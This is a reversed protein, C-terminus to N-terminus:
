FSYGLNIGLVGNLPLNYLEGFDATNYPVLQNSPYHIYVRNKRYGLGVYSDMTVRHFKGIQVGAIINLNFHRFDLYVRKYYNIRGLYIAATSYSVLPAVYFGYPAFKRKRILYFKHAYQLRWGSAKLQISSYAATTALFFNPCLYSIGVQESQTRTSTIEAMFRFESTFPFIGGWLLATPSTKLVVPQYYEKRKLIPHVKLTDGDYAARVHSCGIFFLLCLGTIKLLNM